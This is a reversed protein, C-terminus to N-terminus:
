QAVVTLNTPQFTPTLATVCNSASSEVGGIVNTVVYSNSAGATLNITDVYTGAAPIASTTNIKTFSVVSIPTTPCAGAVRYVNSFSATTADPSASWALTNQHVQVTVVLPTILQTTRARPARPQQGHAAVGLALIVALSFLIFRGVRNRVIQVVLGALSVLIGFGALICVFRALFLALELELPNM